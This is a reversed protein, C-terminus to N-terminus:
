AKIQKLTELLADKFYPQDNFDHIIKESIFKIQLEKYNLGLIDALGEIMSLTVQREGLEIKSLTSTDIDIRHAVKRQPINKQERIQKLYNGFSSSKM